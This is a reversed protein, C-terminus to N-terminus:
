PQLALAAGGQSAGEYLLVVTPPDSSLDAEVLTGDALLLIMRKAPAFGADVPPQAQAPDTTRPDADVTALNTVGGEAVSYVSATRSDACLVAVYNGRRAMVLRTPGTNGEPLPRSSVAPPSATLQITTLTNDVGNATVGLEGAPDIVVDVVGGAAGGLRVEPQTIEPPRTSLNLRLLYDYPSADSTTGAVVARGTDAASAVSVAPGTDLWTDFLLSGDPLRAISALGHEAAVLAGSDILVGRRVPFGLDVSPAFPTLNDAHLELFYIQGSDQSVALLRDGAASLSLTGAGTGVQANAHEESPRDLNRMTLDGGPGLVLLLRVIQVDFVYPDRGDAGVSLTAAGSAIGYPITIQVSKGDGFSYDLLPDAPSYDHGESDTLVLDDEVFDPGRELQLTVQQGVVFRTPGRVDPDSTCAGVWTTALLAGLLVIPSRFPRRCMAIKAAETRRNNIRGQM